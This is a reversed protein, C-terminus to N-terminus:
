KGFVKIVFDSPLFQSYNGWKRTNQTFYRSKELINFKEGMEGPKGTPVMIEHGYVVPVRAYTYFIHLKQWWVHSTVSSLSSALVVCLPCKM